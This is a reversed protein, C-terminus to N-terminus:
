KAFGAWILIVTNLNFLAHAVVTTGIQGTREYALSFIMALVALPVFGVLGRLTTWEVHMAAFLVSPGAVALMRHTRTRLYRFLGARFVLEEAIPAVMTALLFMAGLLWPSETDAFMGILDQRETPLGMVELALEWLNATAIIVPWAILFTVVGSLFVKAAPDRRRPDGGHRAWYVAAGLIMGFQPAAMGGFVINTIRDAAVLKLGAAAVFSLLFVGGLVFLVFTLFEVVSAEWPDLRSPVRERRAIPALVYQWLLVLGAVPLTFEFAAVVLTQATPM